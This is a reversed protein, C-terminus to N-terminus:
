IEVQKTLYFLNTNFKTLIIFSDHCKKLNETIILKFNKILKFEEIVSLSIWVSKIQGQPMLESNEQVSKLKVAANSCELNRPKIKKM